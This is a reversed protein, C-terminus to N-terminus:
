LTWPPARYFCYRGNHAALLDTKPFVRHHLNNSISVNWTITFPKGVPVLQNLTPQGIPNGGLAGTPQQVCASALGAFALISARFLM